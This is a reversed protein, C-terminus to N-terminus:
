FVRNLFFARFPHNICARDCKNSNSFKQRLLVLLFSKLQVIFFNDLVPFFFLFLFLQVLYALFINFFTFTLLLFILKRSFAHSFFNTFFHGLM